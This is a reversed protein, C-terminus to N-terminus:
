PERSQRGANFLGAPALSEQLSFATMKSKKELNQAMELHYKLV